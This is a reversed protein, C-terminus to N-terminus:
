VYIRVRTPERTRAQSPACTRSRNCTLTHAHQHAQTRARICSYLTHKNYYIIIYAPATHSYTHPYSHPVYTPVHTRVCTRRRYMLAKHHTNHRFHIRSRRRTTTPAHVYTRAHPQVHTHTLMRTCKRARM